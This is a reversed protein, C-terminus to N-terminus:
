KLGQLIAEPFYIGATHCHYRYYQYRLHATTKLPHTAFKVALLIESLFHFIRIKPFICINRDIEWGIVRLNEAQNIPSFEELPM